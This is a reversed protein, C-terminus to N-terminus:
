LGRATTHTHTHARSAGELRLRLVRRGWGRRLSCRKPEFTSAGVCWMPAISSRASKLPATSSSSAGRAPSCSSSRAARSSHFFVCSAAATSCAHARRAGLERWRQGGARM